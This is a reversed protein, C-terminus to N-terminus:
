FSPCSLGNSLAVSAPPSRHPQPRLHSSLGRAATTGLRSARPRPGLSAALLPSCSSSVGGPFPPRLRVVEPCEILQRWSHVQLCTEGLGGGWAPFFWSASEM